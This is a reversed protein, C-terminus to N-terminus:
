FDYRADEDASKRVRRPAKRARLAEGLADAQPATAALVADLLQLQHLVTIWTGLAVSPEGAELRKYTAPSVLSRAAAEAITWGRAQRAARLNGGLTHLPAVLLSPLAASAQKKM